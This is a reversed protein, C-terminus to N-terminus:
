NSKQATKTKDCMYNIPDKKKEGEKEIPGKGARPITEVRNLNKRLFLFIM